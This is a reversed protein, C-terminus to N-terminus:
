SVKLRKRSKRMMLTQYYSVAMPLEPVFDNKTIELSQQRPRRDSVHISYNHPVSCILVVLYLLTNTPASFFIVMLTM